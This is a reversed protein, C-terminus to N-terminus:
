GRVGQRFKSMSRKPASAVLPTAPIVTRTESTAHCCLSVAPPSAPSAPVSVHIWTKLFFVRHNFWPTGFDGKPIISKNSNLHHHSFCNCVVCHASDGIGTHRCVGPLRKTGRHRSRSPSQTEHLLIFIMLIKTKPVFWLLRAVKEALSRNSQFRRCRVERVVGRKTRPYRDSDM